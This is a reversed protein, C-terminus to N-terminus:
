EEDVECPESLEDLFDPSLHKVLSLNKPVGEQLSSFSIFKCIQSMPQPLKSFVPRNVEEIVKTRREIPAVLYLPISINPQMTILDALRLIGSYISTTSEIEFAAKIANGKLWVVDILQVIRDTADHFFTIPFQKKLLPLDTFKQGGVGKNRDNKAVWVDLGMDNGLKLLLWQIKTHETAEIEADRVDLIIEEGEPLTVPGSDTDIASVAKGPKWEEKLDKYFDFSRDQKDYRISLSKRIKRIAEDLDSYDADVIQGRYKELIREKDRTSISREYLDPFAMYLMAHRMDNARDVKNPISEIIMDLIRQFEQHDDIIAGPNQQRKLHDAFLLILWFQAYKLHYKQTTRTFGVKQADWIAADSTPSSLNGQQAAWHIDKQKRELTIHTSPLFYVFYIDCVIAWLDSSGGHIQKQLKVEFSLDRGLIPADVMRRKVEAVNEPTWIDKNPWLLSRNEILCLKLFDRFVKYLPERGPLIAM